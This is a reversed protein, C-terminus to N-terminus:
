AAQRTSSIRSLGHLGANARSRRSGAFQGDAAITHDILHVHVGDLQFDQYVKRGTAAAVFAPAAVKATSIAPMAFAGRVKEALSEDFLRLVVRVDPNLDRATLGADLNALDDSTALIIAKARGVGALELTKRTRGDGRVVPVGLEIVGDLLESDASPREVVVVPERTALLEKIVQFGVRGVGVVVVHQRYLSAVMQQWEPLRQKRAFTLYALRVLSDAVAGLGIVPVLFFIPQLYWEDPFDLYAELFIMMFVGYCAEALSLPRHHYAFRMLVGVVLVLTWFVGLPWRFERALYGAYRLGIQWGSPTRLPDVM